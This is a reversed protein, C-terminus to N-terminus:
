TAGAAGLVLVALVLRPPDGSASWLGLLLAGLGFLVAVAVDTYGSVAQGWLAALAFPLVLVCVALPACWRGSRSSARPWGSPPCGPGSISPFARTISAAPRRSRPEGVAAGGAPLRAAAGTGASTRRSAGEYHLILAKRAWITPTVPSRPRSRPGDGSSPWPAPPWPSSRRSSPRSGGRPSAGPGRKAGRLGHRGYASSPSGASRSCGPRSRSRSSGSPCGSTLATLGIVLVTSLGALYAPGVARARRRPVPCCASRLWSGSAPWCRWRTRAWPPSSARVSVEARYGSRARLAGPPGFKRRDYSEVAEPGLARARGLSGPSRRGARSM